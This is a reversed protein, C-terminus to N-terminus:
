IAYIIQMQNTHVATKDRIHSDLKISKIPTFINISIYKIYRDGRERQIM